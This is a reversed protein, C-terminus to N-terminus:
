ETSVGHGIWVIRPQIRTLNVIWETSLSGFSSTEGGRRYSFPSLPIPPIITSFHLISVAVRPPQTERSDDLSDSSNITGLSCIAIGNRNAQRAKHPQFTQALAHAHFTTPSSSQESAALYIWTRTCPCAREETCVRAGSSVFVRSRWEATLMNGSPTM